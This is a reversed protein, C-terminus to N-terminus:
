EIQISRIYLNSLKLLNRLERLKIKANSWSTSLILRIPNLISLPPLILMWKHYKKPLRIFFVGNRWIRNGIEKYPHNLTTAGHISFNGRLIENIQDERLYGYKFTLDFIKTYPYPVLNTILFGNPKIVFNLTFTKIMDLPKELPANIINLTNLNIKFARLIKASNIMKKESINRCYVQKRIRESGSEIGMDIDICGIKKLLSIKNINVTAPNVLCKIPFKIQHKQWLRSFEELWKQNSIFNDDYFFLSKPKFFKQAWIIEDIVNQPSRYRIKPENPYLNHIQHNICYTCEFACGRSSMLYYRESFAGYKFFLLKDPFPLADLNNLLGIMPNRYIKKEKKYLLNPVKDLSIKGEIADIFPIIMQDGEGICLYDIYPQNIMFEPAITAHPGGVLIPKPYKSKIKIAIREFWEYMDTYVSFAIIDPQFQQILKDLLDEKFESLKSFLDVGLNNSRPDFFLETKHGHQKLISSLIEIGLNEQNKFCFLFKL